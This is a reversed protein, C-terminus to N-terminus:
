WIGWDGVRSAPRWLTHILVAFIPRREPSHSETSIGVSVAHGVPAFWRTHPPLVIFWVCTSDGACRDAEVFTYALCPLGGHPLPSAVVLYDTDSQITWTMQPM